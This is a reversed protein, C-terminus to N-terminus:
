IGCDIAALVESNGLVGPPTIVVTCTMNVSRFVSVVTDRLDGFAASGARFLDRLSSDFDLDGLGRIGEDELRPTRVVEFEHVIRGEPLTFSTFNRVQDLTQAYHCSIDMGVDFCARDTETYIIRLVIGHEWEALVQYREDNIEQANISIPIVIVLLAVILVIARLFNM